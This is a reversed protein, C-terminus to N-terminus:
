QLMLAAAHPLRPPEIQPVGLLIRDLLRGLLDSLDLGAARAVRAVVGDAHLPPLPEVELVIENHRPTLLVDVRALCGHLDLAATARRALAHIGALRTAGVQPPCVMVQRPDSPRAAVEMSGIIQEGLLVVQVEPGSMARELVMERDVERAAAVAADVEDPSRLYTVGHGGAGRRPKIVCPWGLLGLARADAPRDPALAVSTPVPINHHALVRRAAVKDFATTVVHASPGAFPIGRRALHAQVRGSGGSPGHM